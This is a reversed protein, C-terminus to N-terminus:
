LQRARQLEAVVRRSPPLLLYLLLVYGSLTYAFAFVSGVWDHFLVLSSRGARLGVAVSATIRVVNGAVVATAAAALASLRRRWTGIALSAICAIALVSSLSSCTPTVVAKFARQNGPVVAISSGSALFVQGQGTLEILAVTARAELHRAPAQFAAFGGVAALLVAVVRGGVSM